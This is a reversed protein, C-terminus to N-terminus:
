PAWRVLMEFKVWSRPGQALLPQTRVKREDFIARVSFGSEKGLSRKERQTEGEAIAYRSPPLVLRNPIMSRLSRLMHSASMVILPIVLAIYANDSGHPDGALFWGNGGRFTLVALTAGLSKALFTVKLCTSRSRSRSCDCSLRPLTSSTSLAKTM